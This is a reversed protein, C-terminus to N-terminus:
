EAVETRMTWRFIVRHSLAAQDLESMREFQEYGGHHPLKVKEDQPNIVQTRLLVPISDPGGELIAWVVGSGSSAAENLGM